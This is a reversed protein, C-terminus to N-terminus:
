REYSNRMEDQIRRYDNESIPRYHWDNNNEMFSIGSGKTTSCIVARPLNKESGYRLCNVLEAVDNGKVIKTEFHFAEFKQRLDGKICTEQIGALGNADVLIVLNDLGRCGAQQIAEWNQGENLEGDGVIVYVRCKDYHRLKMGLAAGVGFSMGQGLSGTAIEIYPTYASTNEPFASGNRCFGLLQEEELLGYECLASLQAAIAHGKSLIIRDRDNEQNRIKNKDAVEYLATLIEVCSLACASHAVQARYILDLTRKRINFAKQKFGAEMDRM